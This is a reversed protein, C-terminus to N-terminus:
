PSLSEIIVKVELASVAAAPSQPAVDAVVVDGTLVDHPVMFAVAFLLLPLLLNMISGASLVLVRTGVSKSALSREINPDEEGAMKTFGGLPIANFSYLTEGRKIGFLRPPFGLGFEEVKIGFAKATAFHGLEHALILVALMGLFILITIILSM